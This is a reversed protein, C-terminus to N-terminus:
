TPVAAPKAGKPIFYIITGKSPAFFGLALCITKGKLDDYTKKNPATLTVMDLRTQGNEMPMDGLIQVKALVPGIEGTEKDLRGPQDFVNMVRGTVTFMSM